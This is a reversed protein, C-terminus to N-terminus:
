ELPKGQRKAMLKGTENGESTGDAKEYIYDFVEGARVTVESGLRLGKVIQPENALVGDIKDGKWAVVEVWMWENGGQEDTPFPAKVSLHEGPALGKQFLPKLKKLKQQAEKSLRTLEADDHDEYSIEDPSSGFIQAMAASQRERLGQGPFGDFRIEWLRNEPDGEERAAQALAFTATRGDLELTLRGGEALAGKKAMTDATLNILTAMAGQQSPVFENVVLDPLGFKALGLSVARAYEGTRYAHIAFHGPLPPWEETWKGLRRERFAKASHTEMSALDVVTAETKDAMCAVMTTFAKLGRLGGARPARYGLLVPDSSKQMGDKDADSLGYSTYDLFERPPPPHKEKRERSMEVGQLGPKGCAISAAEPEVAPEPRFYLLVGHGVEDEFLPGAPAPKAEAAPTAEPPVDTRAKAGRERKCGAGAVVLAVVLTCPLKM